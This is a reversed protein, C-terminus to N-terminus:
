VHARGIQLGHAMAQRDVMGLGLRQDLEVALQFRLIALGLAAMNRADARNFLDSCFYQFGQLLVKLRFLLHGAQPGNTM